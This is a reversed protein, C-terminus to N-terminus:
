TEEHPLDLWGQLDRSFDELWSVDESLAASLREADTPEASKVVALESTAAAPPEDTAKCPAPAQICGMPAAEGSKERQNRIMRAVEVNVMDKYLLAREGMIELIKVIREDAGEMQMMKVRLDEVDDWLVPKDGLAFAGRCIDAFPWRKLNWSKRLPALTHHSMGLVEYVTRVPVHFFCPLYPHIDSSHLRRRGARDPDTIINCRIHIRPM